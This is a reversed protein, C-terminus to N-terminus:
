HVPCFAATRDCFGIEEATMDDLNCALEHIRDEHDPTEGIVARVVNAQEFEKRGCGYGIKSVVMQPQSSYEKVFYKLLAAGTPTCLEGKISGGYTPVGQLIYAAAPAPVPLIGHACRVHGSGVHVPSAMIEDPHLEDLLICVAAVDAVADMTGVEHFHIEEVPVGHVYSEAEAILHYVNLIDKKVKDSIELKEIIATIDAMSSHHHGAHDHNHDDQEHEHHEHVHHEHAHHEQDHHEHAHHEHDHRDHKFVDESLEEKGDVTVTMHTGTIGCKVTKQPQYLVGPIGLSNLRETMAKPDDCLELLAASLMDGAAGMQLDLYLTRM